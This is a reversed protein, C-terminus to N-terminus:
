DITLISQLAGSKTLYKDYSKVVKDWYIYLNKHHSKALKNQNVYLFLM